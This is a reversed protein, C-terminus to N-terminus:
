MTTGGRGPHPTPTAWQRPQMTYKPIMAPAMRTTLEGSIRTYREVADSRWRGFLKVALSDFGANFLVSAGGSRLSHSSYNVPDHGALKAAQKIANVLDRVQLNYSADVKCLLTNPGSGLSKHHSTLFWAALVPCCWSCGFRAMTRSAGVGFQDSKSGRFQIMVATVNQLLKAHHGSHDIFKVDSRRIAYKQVTSGQALYESRRLLFFFGLVTAGWIVRHQTDEFNLYKHLSKLIGPTIPSKPNSPPDSRQMGTIALQHGPLLGVRYGLLRRHHWSIHSIKSLVTSTSNGSRTDGWGYRWCYTAFLALQYSHRKPEEPLWTSFRLWECWKSWQAWTSAYQKSSSTALSNSQLSEFLQHLTKQLGVASTYTSFNTWRTLEPETWARSAADAMWNTLGPLHEASVRLNFYAEALGIARNIEQSFTNRSHLLCM